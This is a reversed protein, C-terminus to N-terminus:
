RSAQTRKLLRKRKRWAVAGTSSAALGVLILTSPEPVATISGGRFTVQGIPNGGNDFFADVGVNFAGLSVDIETSLGTPNTANFTMTAIRQSFGSTPGADFTFGDFYFAKGTAQNFTKLGPLAVPSMGPPRSENRGTANLEAVNWSMSFSYSSLSTTGDISLWVDATVTDGPAVARTNQIGIAPDLDIEFILGAKVSQISILWSFVFLHIRIFQHM